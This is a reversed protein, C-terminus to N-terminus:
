KRKGKKPHKAKSPIFGKEPARKESLFDSKVAFCSFLTRLGHFLAFSSTELGQIVSM